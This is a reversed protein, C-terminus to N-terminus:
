RTIQMETGRWIKWSTRRIVRKELLMRSAHAAATVNWIERGEAM